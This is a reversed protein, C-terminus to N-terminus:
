VRDQDNATWCKSSAAQWILESDMVGQLFVHFLKGRNRENKDAGKRHRGASGRLPGYGTGSDAARSAGRNATGHSPVTACDDASRAACCGTSSDGIVLCLRRHAAM